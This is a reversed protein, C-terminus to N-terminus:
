NRGHDEQNDSILFSLKLSEQEEKRYALFKENKELAVQVTRDVLIEVSMKSSIKPDLVHSTNGNINEKEEKNDIPQESEDPFAEHVCDEEQKKFLNMQLELCSVTKTDNESETVEPQMRSITHVKVLNECWTVRKLLKQRKKKQDCPLDEERFQVIKQNEVMNSYENNIQEEESQWLFKSKTDKVSKVINLFMHHQSPHKALFLQSARSKM